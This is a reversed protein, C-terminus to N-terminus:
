GPYVPMKQQKEIKKNKDFLHCFSIIRSQCIFIIM